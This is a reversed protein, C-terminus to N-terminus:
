GRNAATERKSYRGQRTAVILWESGDDVTDVRVAWEGALADRWQADTLVRADLSAGVVLDECLCTHPGTKSVRVGSESPLRDVRDLWQPSPAEVVWVGAPRVVRALDHALRTIAGEDPPHALTGHLAVAADFSASAFPLPQWFDARVLPVARRRRACRDLMEGSVDVGTPAYGADLLATLERGTGVGLDLVQGPPPPLERLVGKMRRRSQDADLAYSREYRGAIADFFAAPGSSRIASM